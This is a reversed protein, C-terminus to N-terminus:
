KSKSSGRIFKIALKTLYLLSLIFVFILTMSEIFNIINLDQSNVTSMSPRNVNYKVAISDGVKLSIVPKYTILESKSYFVKGVKYNYQAQIGWGDSSNIEEVKIVVGNTRSTNQFLLYISNSINNSIFRASMLCFIMAIAASIGWKNTLDM